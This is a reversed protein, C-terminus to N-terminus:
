GSQSHDSDGTGEVDVDEVDFRERQSTSYWSLSPLGLPATVPYVATPGMCTLTTGHHIGAHYRCDVPGCRRCNQTAEGDEEHHSEDRAGDPEVALDDDGRRRGRVSPQPTVSRHAM